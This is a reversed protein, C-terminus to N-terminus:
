NIPKLYYSRVWDIKTTNRDKDNLEEATPPQEWNYTETVMNIHMPFAFPRPLLTTDVKVSAVLADNLYFHVTNADEWWCGYINFAEDSKGNLQAKNGSAYSSGNHWVHTNSHMYKAFSPNRKAGGVTELIDLEQSVKGIKPYHQGSNSMWFTSSMSISSAKLRCEYYGYHAGTQKSVVAAGGITFTHGKEIIPQELMGNTLWLMGDKVSVNEPMFRAPPRGRWRPHHDHWKKSNLRDGNFEDTYDEQIVWKYGETPMPPKGNTFIPLLCFILLFILHQLNFYVRLDMNVFNM